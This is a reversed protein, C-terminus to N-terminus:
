AETSNYRYAEQAANAIEIALYQNGIQDALEMASEPDAYIAVVYKGGRYELSTDADMTTGKPLTAPGGMYEEAEYIAKYYDDQNM